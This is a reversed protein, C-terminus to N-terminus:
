EKTLYKQLVKDLLIPAYGILEVSVPIYWLDLHGNPLTVQKEHLHGHINAKYREKERAHVPYHTMLVGNLEHAARVDAFIELYDKLEQNDHNGKILIKRGNLYSALKLGPKGLAVDGLHYVKDEPTVIANWNKIIVSNMHEVDRFPRGCYTIINRHNFHTDSILYIKM